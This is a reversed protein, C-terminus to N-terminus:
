GWGVGLPVFRGQNKGYVFMGMGISGFVLSAMLVNMDMCGEGNTRRGRGTVDAM